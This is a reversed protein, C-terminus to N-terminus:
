RNIAGSVSDLKSWFELVEKAISPARAHLDDHTASPDSWLKKPGKYGDFLEQGLESPIVDDNGGLLVALPGQYEKLWENSPYKDKLMWKVPFLPLHRGAAGSMSNYPAVLFVGSVKGRQKGALYCVPGTGLSEGIIYTECHNPICDFAEESAGIISSQTPSGARGGYGPYEMIYFDIAAASQFGDAYHFWSTACGANGHLLLMARTGPGVQSSRHWGILEGKANAWPQFGIKAAAPQSEAFSKRCPYYILRRQGMTLGIVCVIYLGTVVLVGFIVVRTAYRKKAPM